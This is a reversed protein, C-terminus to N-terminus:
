IGRLGDGTLAPRAYGVHNIYQYNVHFGSSKALSRVNRPQCGLIEAAEATTVTDRDRRPRVPPPVPVPAQQAGVRLVDLLEAIDHTHRFAVGAHALAAKLAKEIFQHAHLGIVADNM